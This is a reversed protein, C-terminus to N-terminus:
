QDGGRGKDNPKAPWMRGVHSATVLAALLLMAALEVVLLWPGFLTTGVAKATLTEGEIVRGADGQWLSYVLVGLLVLALVSPGFWTGAKLWLREQEAAGEGLNLIMVVFVFLVMIAGAYVIIELAGAFPAGLAFYVMAVAILSVILYLLAHVANTGSIVGLTALVAVLGSLYFALEM